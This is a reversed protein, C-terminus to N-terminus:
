AGAEAAVAVAEEAALTSPRGGVRPLLALLILPPLLGVVAAAEAFVWGDASPRGARLELWSGEDEAEAEAEDEPTDRESARPPPAFPPAFPPRTTAPRPSHPRRFMPFVQKM